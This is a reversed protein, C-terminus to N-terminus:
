IEIVLRQRSTLPIQVEPLFRDALTRLREYVVADLFLRDGLRHFLEALEDVFRKEGVTEAGESADILLGILYGRSHLDHVRVLCGFRGSWGSPIFHKEVAAM